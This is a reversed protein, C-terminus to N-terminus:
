FFFIIIISLKFLNISLQKFMRNYYLFFITVYITIIDNNEM